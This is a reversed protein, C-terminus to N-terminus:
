SFMPHHRPKPNAMPHFIAFLHIDGTRRFFFFPDIIQHYFNWLIKIPESNRSVTVFYGSSTSVVFYNSFKEDGKYSFDCVSKSSPYLVNKSLELLYCSWQSM